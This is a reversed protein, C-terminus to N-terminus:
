NNFRIWKWLEKYNVKKGYMLIGTRYIKGALWTMFVFSIVLLSMSIIVDAVPVGFPVRVMMVIPSTFPIISFWYSITGGPNNITTMMVLIGLILPLSIPLMFQQTDTENDVASGVAAFMAAYLLYGGIFYFLFMSIVLTYNIAQIAAFIGEFRLFQEDLPNTDAPLESGIEFAQPTLKSVDTDSILINQVLSVIAFTLLVWLLFQTLGVLAVGVIKGLMLQFPKVSSIIVEVIRNTKEEIVGRMVQSGYMFVFIYILFGCIYGLIMAVETSTEKEGGDKDMTITQVNVITNVARLISRMEDSEIGYDLGLQEIKVDELHKEIGNAIHMRVGMNPQKYSFMQVLGRSGAGVTRPIYLLAYYDSDILDEKAKDLNYDPIHPMFYEDSVFDFKIYQTEILARDFMRTEDIVKILKLEDSELQMLIVPALMLGAFLIPGLITMIIFSKKRVRTTYERKLIIGIKSM